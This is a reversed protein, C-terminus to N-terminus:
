SSFQQHNSVTQMNNSNLYRLTELSEIIKNIKGPETIDVWLLKQLNPPVQGKCPELLVPIMYIVGPPRLRQQEEAKRIEAQVYGKKKVSTSSICVLVADVEKMAKDIELELEQGPLLRDEDIWPDIWSYKKLESYLKRVLPKDETAHNIFVKVKLMSAELMKDRHLLSGITRALEIRADNRDDETDRTYAIKGVARLDFEVKENKNLLFVPCRNLGFAYGGLYYVDEDRGSLDVVIIRSSDLNGKILRTIDKTINKKYLDWVYQSDIKLKDDLVPLIISKYTDIGEKTSAGVVFCSDKVALASIKQLLKYKSQLYLIQEKLQSRLEKSGKISDAYLIVRDGQLLRSLDAENRAILILPKHKSATIGVEFYVNLNKDTIDAIIIKARKICDEVQEMVSGFAPMKDSRKCILDLDGAVEEILSYTDDYKSDFDMLVFIDIPDQKLKKEAEREIRINETKEVATRVREIFENNNFPKEFYDFAGLHSIARKTTEVDGYGTLVIAQVENGQEKLYELLRLGDVNDVVEDKLRMDTVVVHFPPTQRQIVSLAGEYDKATKVDFQDELIDTLTDRWNKLDDVVLVSYKKEGM